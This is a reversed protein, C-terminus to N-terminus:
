ILINITIIIAECLPTALIKFTPCNFRRRSDVASSFQKIGGVNGYTVKLVSEYSSIIGIGM